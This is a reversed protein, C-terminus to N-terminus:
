FEVVYVSGPASAVGTGNAEKVCRDGTEERKAHRGDKYYKGRRGRGRASGASEGVGSHRKGQEGAAKKM